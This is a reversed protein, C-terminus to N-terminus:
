CLKKLMGLKMYIRALVLALGNGREFNVAIAFVHIGIKGLFIFRPLWLSLFADHEFSRRSNMFINLWKNYNNDKLAILGRRAKEHNKEIVGLM